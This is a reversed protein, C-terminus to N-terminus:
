SRSSSIFVTSSNQAWLSLLDSMDAFHKFKLILNSRWAAAIGLNWNEKICTSFTGTVCPKNVFLTNSHM